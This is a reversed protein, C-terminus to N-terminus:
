QKGQRPITSKTKANEVDIDNAINKIQTGLKVIKKQMLRLTLRMREKILKRSKSKLKKIEAKAGSTM